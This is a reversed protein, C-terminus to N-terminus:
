GPPKSAKIRPNSLHALLGAILLNRIRSQEFDFRPVAVRERQCFVNSICSDFRSHLPRFNPKSPRAKARSEFGANSERNSPRRNRIGVEAAVKRRGCSIWFQPTAQIPRPIQCPGRCPESTSSKLHCYPSRGWHEHLWYQAVNEPVGPFAPSAQTWWQKFAAKDIGGWEDRPPELHEPYGDM